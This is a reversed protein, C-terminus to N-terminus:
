HFPTRRNSREPRRLDHGNRLKMWPLYTLRCLLTSSPVFTGVPAEYRRLVATRGVDASLAWLRRGMLPYERRNMDCVNKDRDSLPSGAMSKTSSPLRSEPPSKDGRHSAHRHREHRKAASQNRPSADRRLVPGEAASRLIRIPKRCFRNVNSVLVEGAPPASKPANDAVSTGTFLPLRPARALECTLWPPCGSRLM